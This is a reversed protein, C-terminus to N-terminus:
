SSAWKVACKGSACACRGQGCDMTGNACEQTCMIGSCSPMAGEPVCSTAHCCEGPFCDSDRLCDTANGTQNSTCSYTHSCASDSTGPYLCADTTCGDGDDCDGDVFCGIQRVEVRREGALYEISVHTRERTISVTLRDGASGDSSVCRECGVCDSNPMKSCDLRKTIDAETVTGNSEIVFEGCLASKPDLGYSHKSFCDSVKGALFSAVETRSGKSASVENPWLNFVLSLMMMCLAIAAILIIVQEISSLTAKM